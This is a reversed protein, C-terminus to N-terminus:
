IFMFYALKLAPLVFKTYPNPTEYASLTMYNLDDDPKMVFVYEQEMKVCFACLKCLSHIFEVHNVYIFCM